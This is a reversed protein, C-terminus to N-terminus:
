PSGGMRDVLLGRSVGLRELAAQDRQLDIPDPLQVAIEDIRESSVGARRLIRRLEEHSVGAM